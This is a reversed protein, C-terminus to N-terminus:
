FLRLFMKRPTLMYMTAQFGATLSKSSLNLFDETKAVTIFNADIFKKAKDGVEKDHYREAFYYASICDSTSMIFNKVFFVKEALAKLHPLILYDAMMILDPSIEPAIRQVGGPTYIFELIDGMVSETVMELRVLGENAEKMDSILLREFFPSAQSLVRGHARFEIGDEVALTVDCPDDLTEPPRFVQKLSDKLESNDCSQM